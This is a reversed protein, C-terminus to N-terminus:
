CPPADGPAADPAPSLESQSLVLPVAQTQGGPEWINVTYTIGAQCVRGIRGAAAGGTIKVLDGVKFAM